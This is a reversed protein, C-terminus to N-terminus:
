GGECRDNRMEDDAREFGYLPDIWGWLLEQFNVDILFSRLELALVAIEAFPFLEKMAIRGSIRGFLIEVFCRADFGLIQCM